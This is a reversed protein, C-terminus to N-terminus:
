SVKDIVHFLHDAAEDRNQTGSRSMVNRYRMASEIIDVAFAPTAQDNKLQQLVSSQAATLPQSSKRM